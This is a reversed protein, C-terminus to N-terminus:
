SNGQVVTIISQNNFVTAWNTFNNHDALVINVNYNNMDSANQMYSANTFLTSINSAFNAVNVVFTYDYTGEDLYTGYVNANQTISLANNIFMQTSAM